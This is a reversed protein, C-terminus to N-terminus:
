FKFKRKIRFPTMARAARSESHMLKPLSLASVSFAAETEQSRAIRKGFWHRAYRPFQFDRCILVEWPLLLSRSYRPGQVSKQDGNRTAEDIRALKAEIGMALGFRDLSFAISIADIKRQNLPPHNAALREHTADEVFCGIDGGELSLVSVLTDREFKGLADVHQEILGQTLFPLQLENRGWVTDAEYVSGWGWGRLKVPQIRAPGDLSIAHVGENSLAFLGGTNHILPHKVNLNGLDTQVEDGPYYRTLGSPKSDQRIGGGYRFESTERNVHCQIDLRYDAGADFNADRIKGAWPGRGFPQLEALIEIFIGSADHTATTVMKKLGLHIFDNGDPHQVYISGMEGSRRVSSQDTEFASVDVLGPRIKQMQGRLFTTLASPLFFTFQADHRDPLGQYFGTQQDREANNDHLCIMERGRNRYSLLVVSQHQTLAMPSANRFVTARGSAVPSGQETLHIGSMQM